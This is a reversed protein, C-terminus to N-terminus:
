VAAAAADTVPERDEEANAIQEEPKRKRATITLIGDTLIATVAGADIEVPLAFRRMLEQSSFETFHIHEQEEKKEVSGVVVILNPLVTLELNEKCFGPVAVRIQIEGEAESMEAQPVQFLDREARLWDEIEFGDRHGRSEFMAYARNRVTQASHEMRDILALYSESDM